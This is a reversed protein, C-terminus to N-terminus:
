MRSNRSPVAASASARSDGGFGIGVRLVVEHLEATAMRM